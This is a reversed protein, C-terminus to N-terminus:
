QKEFEGKVNLTVEESVMAAPMKSVGFETRKLTGTAVIGAKMKKNQPNEIPGNLTVDLIVPKTVGHMTLNGELKYKKGAVNTFKTSKFAITPNNAADFFDPTKLHGDRRENDTSVSNVDATFDFSADSLDPKNSTFKADFTKFNGDVDSLMMHTITFGVKSHAKDVTWTTQAFTAVSALLLASLFTIKKM